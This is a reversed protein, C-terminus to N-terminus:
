VGFMEGACLLLYRIALRSTGVLVFSQFLCLGASCSSAADHGCAVTRSVDNVRFGSVCSWANISVAGPSGASVDTSSICGSRSATACQM